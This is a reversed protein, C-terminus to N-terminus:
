VVQETAWVHLEHDNGGGVIRQRCYRLCRDLVTLVNQDLLRRRTPRHLQNREDRRGLGTAHNHFHPEVVPEM